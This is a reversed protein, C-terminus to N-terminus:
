MLEQKTGKPRYIRYKRRFEIKKENGFNIILGIDFGTATLYNVLQTEHIVTINNVAKLEIVFFDEVLIDIFYIGVEVGKYKVKVQVQQEAKLGANNLEIMLANEYVKELYGAALTRRVRIACQIIKEALNDIYNSDHNM